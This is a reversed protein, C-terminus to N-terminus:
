YVVAIDYNVEYDGPSQQKFYQEIQNKEEPNEVDGQITISKESQNIFVDFIKGNVRVKQTRILSEEMLKDLSTFKRSAELCEFNLLFLITAFIIMALSVKKGSRRNKMTMVGKGERVEMSRGM